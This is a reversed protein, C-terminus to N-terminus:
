PQIAKELVGRGILAAQQPDNEELLVVIALPAGQWNLRTGALYWSISRQAGRDVSGFEWFPEGTVSFLAIAQQVASASLATVPKGTSPFVVWGQTQTNVALELRPSPRIGGDTLTAAALAMQLPSVPLDKITGPAAAHTTPINVAPVTYFGLKEFLASLAAGTPRVALFLPLIAQASYQGQTARDLLPARPDQALTAGITDLQNPDYGPHSALVLIEGTAANLLVVAGTHNGLLQDARAQIGLDLSTRVDLGPPPQGYLLHEWGILLDPNGDMGRLYPDLSEELGTQGYVPHNYGSVSALAPANYRRAYSGSKGTTIDIPDNNRDLLAGRKVYRDSIARRANDTRNLLNDSRVEAWWGSFLACALLGGWIVGAM